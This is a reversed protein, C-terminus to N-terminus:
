PLFFCVPSLRIRILTICQRVSRIHPFSHEGAKRFESAGIYFMMESISPFGSLFRFTRNPIIGGIQTQQYGFPFWTGINPTIPAWLLTLYMSGKAPVTMRSDHRYGARPFHTSTTQGFDPISAEDETIMCLSNTCPNLTLSHEM